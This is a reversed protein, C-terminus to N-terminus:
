NAPGVYWWVFSNSYVVIFGQSIEWHGWILLVKLVSSYLCLCLLVTNSKCSLIITAVKYIPSHFNITLSVEQGVLAASIVAICLLCGTYWAAPILLNLLSWPDQELVKPPCSTRVHLIQVLYTLSNFYMKTTSRHRIEPVCVPPARRGCFWM